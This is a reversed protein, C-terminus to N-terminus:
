SSAEGVRSLGIILIWSGVGLVKYTTGCMSNLSVQLIVHERAFCIPRKGIVDASGLLCAV